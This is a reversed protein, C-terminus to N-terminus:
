ETLISKKTYLEPVCVLLVPAPLGRFGHKLNNQNGRPAGPKRTIIPDSM